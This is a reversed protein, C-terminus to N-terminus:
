CSSTRSCTRSGSRPERRVGPGREPQADAAPLEAADPVKAAVAPDPRPRLRHERVEAAARDAGALDQGAPLPRGARRPVAHPVERSGDHVAPLPGRPAPRTGPVRPLQGGGPRDPQRRVDRGPSGYGANLAENEMVLAERYADEYRAQNMLSARVVPDARPDAGRPGRGPGAAILRRPGPRDAREGRGPGPGPRGRHPGRRVPPVRDPEAAQGADGRDRGRGGPHQGAPRRAPGQFEEPRRQEAPGPRPGPDGRGRGDDPGRPDAAPGRGAPAPREPRRGEPRGAGRGEPGALKLEKKEDQALLVNIDLRPGTSTNQTAKKLDEVSVEGKEIRGVIKLGAKVAPTPRTSSAPRGRVTGQGDRGEEVGLAWDRRNSSSRGPWGPPSSPWPWPGTPGSCPRPM